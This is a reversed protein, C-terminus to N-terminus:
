DTHRQRHCGTIVCPKQYPQHIKLAEANNGLEIQCEAYNLYVEALRIFFWSTTDAVTDDYFNIDSSLFKRM